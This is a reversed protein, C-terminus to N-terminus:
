RCLHIPLFVAEGTGCGNQLPSNKDTFMGAEPSSLIVPPCLFLFQCRSYLFAPVAVPARGFVCVCVALKHAPERRRECTYTCINIYTYTYASIHAYIEKEKQAVLRGQLGPIALFRSWTTLLVLLPIRELFLLSILFLCATRLFPLSLFGYLSPCVCLLSKVIWPNFVPHRLHLVRPLSCGPAELRRRLGGAGREKSLIGGDVCASASLMETTAMGEASGWQGGGSKELVMGARCCKCGGPELCLEELCLHMTLM